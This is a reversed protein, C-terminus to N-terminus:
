SNMGSRSTRRMPTSAPPRPVASPSCAARKLPPAGPTSAPFMRRRAAPHRVALDREGMGDGRSEVVGGDTGLVGREVVRAAGLVNRLVIGGREIRHDLQRAGFSDQGSKFARVGHGLGQAKSGRERGTVYQHHVERSAAVLIHANQGALQLM